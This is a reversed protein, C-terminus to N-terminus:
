ELFDAACLVDNMGHELMLDIGIGQMITIAELMKYGRETLSYETRLPYGDYIKKTVMGVEILEFLQELM